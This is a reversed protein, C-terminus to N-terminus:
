QRGEHGTDIGWVSRRRRRGGLCPKDAIQPSWPASGAPRNQRKPQLSAPLYPRATRPGGATASRCKGGTDASAKARTWSRTACRTGIASIRLALKRHSPSTGGARRPWKGRKRLRPKARSALPRSAPRNAGFM